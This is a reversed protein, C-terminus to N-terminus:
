KFEDITSIFMPNELTVVKFGTLKSIIREHFALEGPRFLIIKQPQIKLATQRLCEALTNKQLQLYTVEAIDQLESAFRRMCIFFYAIKTRHQRQIQSEHLSEIMVVHDVSPDFKSSELFKLNLQDGALFVLHRVKKM